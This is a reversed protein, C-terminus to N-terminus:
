AVKLLRLSFASLSVIGNWYRYRGDALYLAPVDVKGQRIIYYDAVMIGAFPGLFVVYGGM